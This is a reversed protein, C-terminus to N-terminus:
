ATEELRQNQNIHNKQIVGIQFHLLENLLYIVKKIFIHILVYIINKILMQFNTIYIM